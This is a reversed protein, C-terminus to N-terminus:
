QGDGTPPCVVGGRGNRRLRRVSIRDHLFRVSSLLVEGVLASAEATTIKDTPMQHGMQTLIEEADRLIATWAAVSSGFDTPKITIWEGSAIRRGTRNYISLALACRSDEFATSSAVKNNAM